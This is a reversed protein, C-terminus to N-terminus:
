LFYILNKILVYIKFYFIFFNNVENSRKNKADPTEM